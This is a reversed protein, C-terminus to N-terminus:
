TKANAGALNRPGDGPGILRSKATTCRGCSKQIVTRLCKWHMGCSVGAVAAIEKRVDVKETQPLRSSGKSKGGAQQHHLAQEKFSKALGRAMAIRSFPPLGPSLRHCFLLLRLAEEEFINYQICEIIEREQLRAIELRAYGDIVVGDSTIILPFLFADEGMELLANLRSASVKIGLRAYSPHPRLQDVRWSVLQYKTHTIKASNNAFSSLANPQNATYSGQRVHGDPDPSEHAPFQDHANSEWDALKGSDSRPQSHPQVGGDAAFTEM